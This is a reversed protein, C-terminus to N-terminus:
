LFDSFEEEFISDSYAILKNRYSQYADILKLADDTLTAGGGNNGGTSSIVLKLNLGNEADKLIRWAKSYAMEMSKAGARLSGHERIRILLECVGPGFCKQDTFLRATIVPHLRQAMYVDEKQAKGYLVIRPDFGGISGNGREM